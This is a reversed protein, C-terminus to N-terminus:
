LIGPLRVRLRITKEVMADFVPKLDGPSANIVQLVEATATQGELAERQETILRANEMAIVVQAAFNELLAIQKDAFPAVVDRYFTFFGVVTQDRILPVLVVTRAGALDVFETLGTDLGYSPDGRADLIHVVRKTAFLEEHPGGPAATDLVGARWALYDASWGGGTGTVVESGGYASLQGLAAGCLATAKELIANFVPRLDGPSANIVELVESTATQQELAERQETILRANEMAIVAQGAFSRLLAIHKGTFPRVERRYAMFGGLVTAGKRLAVWLATRAGGAEILLQRGPDAGRTEVDISIDDIQVFPEGHALRWISTDPLMDNSRQIHEAFGEPLKYAAVIRYQDGDFLALTGFAAGILRMAKELMADFVPALNGSSANIVQLVDAMATQQELAERQETILRANEIAIVAQDAFSELLAIERGTFERVELRHASIAGLVVGDRRL